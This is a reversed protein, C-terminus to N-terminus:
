APDFDGLASQYPPIAEANNKEKKTSSNQNEENVPSRKKTQKGVAAGNETLLKILALSNNDALLRIVAQEILVVRMDKKYVGLAEIVTPNYIKIVMSTM